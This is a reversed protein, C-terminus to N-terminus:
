RSLYEELRGSELLDRYHSDPDCAAQEAVEIADDRASGRKRVLPETYFPDYITMERDMSLRDASMGWREVLRTGVGSMPLLTGDLTGPLLHTTEIVLTSDVWHGVSFGMSTPPLDQRPSRGDMWIRRPMNHDEHVVLYHSGADVIEMAYPSGFERPLGMPLCRLVDDQWSESAEYIRRGADTLPIPKPELDDVTLRFKYWNSWPGTIDFDYDTKIGAYGYTNRTSATLEEPDNVVFALGPPVLETGDEKEIGRVFLKKKENRGLAGWVRIKDGIEIADKGWGVRRLSAVNSTQLIWEEVDGDETNAEIRFRVHPNRYWIYVITGTLEGQLDKDFEASFSHHAIAPSLTAALVVLVGAAIVVVEIFTRRIFVARFIM